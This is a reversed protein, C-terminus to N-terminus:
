KAQQNKLVDIQEVISTADDFRGEFLARDRQQKLAGISAMQENEFTYADWAATYANQVLDDLYQHVFTEKIPYDKQSKIGRKKAYLKLQKDWWGDNKLRLHDIKGALDANEGIWKNIWQRKDPTLEDLSVKDILPKSMGDWGTSILWERWPERGANTKFFPLMKSMAIELPSAGINIPEGTFIDVQGELANRVSPIWRNRNALHSQWNNEVDQLQPVLISSLAGRIPTGPILSDITGAAYRNWSGPDGQVLGALTEIETGFLDNTLNATLTSALTEYWTGSIDGDVDALENTVDAAMALWQKFIPLQEYSRWDPKEDDGLNISFPKWGMGMMRRKEAQDWPGAGTLKGNFALMAASMTVGVTAMKRGLYESKLQLFEDDTAGAMGHMDLVERIEDPTKANITKFSRDKWLSLLGTPEYTQVVGFQNFRTTPFMFIGKLVPFTDMMKEFSQLAPVDANLAIEESQFKAYGEKLIGQEDFTQDYLEQEIRKFEVPDIAGNSKQYLADFAKGRANGSAMVSKAFGDASYMAHVGWRNWNKRNWWTAGKTLNWIAQKGPGWTESLEEFEEFERLNKRWDNAGPNAGESLNWDKRGRAMAADPNANAFRWEEAAMKRARQFTEMFGSYTAFARQLPKMNGKMAYPVTGALTTMPKVAMSFANGVWAKAPAFGNLLNGMRMGQIEKLVSSPIEPNTDYLGKKIIGLRNNILKNMKFLSDIDGNTKAYMRYLPRLYAPNQQSLMELEDVFNDVQRTKAAVSEEFQQYLDDLYDTDASDAVKAYKARLQKSVEEKVRSVEAEKMLTRIRPMIMEQLRSTDVVDDMLDINRGLDSVSGAAQTQIAASARQKYPSVADVLRNVTKNLIERAGEDAGSEVMQMLNFEANNFSKAVEAFSEDSLLTADYLDNVAQAVQKETLTQDGVKLSFEASLEDSAKALIEERTANDARSLAQVDTDNILPRSRGESTGVNNRIRAQDAMFDVGNASEDMTLRASPEAPENVFANYGMVGEPDEMLVRQGEELQAQMKTSRQKLVSAVLPDGGAEGLDVLEQAAKAEM